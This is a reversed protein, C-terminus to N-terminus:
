NTAIPLGAGVWGAIGDGIHGVVDAGAKRASEAAIASRRGGACYFLLRGPPLAAPNFTSLPCLVAGAIHGRAFEAAERVDVLVIGDEALKDAAEDPTFSELRPRRSGFM